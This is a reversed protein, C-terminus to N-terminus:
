RRRYDDFDPPLDFSMSAQDVSGAVSMMAARASELTGGREELIVAAHSGTERMLVFLLHETRVVKCDSAIAETFADKLIQEADDSLKMDVSSAIGAEDKHWRQALAKIQDISVGAGTKNVSEPDVRVLGLLLHETDIASSGVAGAEFRAMFVVRRSAESWLEFLNRLRV